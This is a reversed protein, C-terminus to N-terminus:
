FYNVSATLNYSNYAFRGEGRKGLFINAFLEDTLEPIEAIKGSTYDLLRERCGEIRELLGGLRYEQVDFGYPKNEALWQKRFVKIFARLKKKLVLMEDAIKKLEEKDGRKYAERLRIGMDYKVSIVDSLAAVSEFIYAYQGKGARKVIPVAKKFYAKDEAHIEPDFQGSFVDNYLSLKCLNSRDGFHKGLFTDPAEIKLFTDFQYGTLACFDRKLASTNLGYATYAFHAAAPLVSFVSASGGDDGWATDILHKVGHEKASALAAETATMSFGNSPILGIWKWAGGAFWLDKFNEHLRFMGDYGKKETQYYDWYCASVNEPIKEIVDRPIFSNGDKDLCDARRFAIHYFMDSWMVASFGYKAAIKAVRSLHETLVEFKDRYGHNNLYQGMGVLAAEDMGINVRRTTFCEALTKFINEILTYVREDGILLIDACDFHTEYEHYRKIRSIHALTQICPILEMGIERAYADMEKMEAKTYRGRLYGFLPENDVEYTDETYLMLANYGLAALNRLLKKVTEVSLVANRSCDAMFCLDEAFCKERYVQAGQKKNAEAGGLTGSKLLLAARFIDRKGRYNVTIEGSKALEISFEEAKVLKATEPYEYGIERFVEKKLFEANPLNKM